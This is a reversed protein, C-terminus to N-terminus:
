PFTLPEHGQVDMWTPSSFLWISRFGPQEELEELALFTKPCKPPFWSETYLQPPESAKLGSISGSPWRGM